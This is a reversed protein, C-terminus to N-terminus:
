SHWVAISSVRDNLYGLDSRYDDVRTVAGGWNAHEHVNATNCAGHLRISRAFDNYSWGLTPYRYGAPDCDGDYGYITYSRGAFNSDDYLTFLPAPPAAAGSARVNLASASDACQQSVVKSEAQGPEVKKIVIACHEPGSAADATSWASASGTSLTGAALAAVGVAAIRSGM